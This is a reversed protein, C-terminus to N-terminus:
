TARVLKSERAEAEWAVEQTIRKTKDGPGWLFLLLTHHTHTHTHTHIHTHTHTINQFGQIHKWSGSIRRGRGRVALVVPYINVCAVQLQKTQKPSCAHNMRFGPWRSGVRGAALAGHRVNLFRITTSYANLFPPTVTGQPATHAEPSLPVGM